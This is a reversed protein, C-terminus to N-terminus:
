QDTLSDFPMRGDERPRLAEPPESTKAARQALEIARELAEELKRCVQVQDSFAKLIPAKIRQGSSTKDSLTIPETCYTNAVVVAEEGM